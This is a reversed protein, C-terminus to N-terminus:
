DIAGGLTASLRAAMEPMRDLVDVTEYPAQELDYLREAKGDRVYKYPGSYIAVRKHPLMGDPADLRPNWETVVVADSEAGLPRGFTSPSSPLRALAVMM